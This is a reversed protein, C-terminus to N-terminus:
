CWTTSSTVFEEGWYQTPKGHIDMKEGLEYTIIGSLPLIAAFFFSYWHFWPASAIGLLSFVLVRYWFNSPRSEFFLGRLRRLITFDKGWKKILRFHTDDIRYFMVPDPVEVKVKDIIFCEQPALIYFNRKLASVDFNYKLEGNEARYEEVTMNRKAAQDIEMSKAITRELEKIEAVVGPDMYSKYRESPLFKLRYKVALKVIQELSFVTGEYFKEKKELEIAKGKATEAQILNANSGVSRLIELDRHSDYELLRNVDAIVDNSFAEEKQKKQVKKLEKVVDKTM